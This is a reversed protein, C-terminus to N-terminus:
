TSNLWTISPAGSVVTSLEMAKVAQLAEREVAVQANRASRRPQDGRAVRCPRWGPFPIIRDEARKHTPPKRPTVHDLRTRRLTNSGKAGNPSCPAPSAPATDAVTAPCVRIFDDIVWPFAPSGGAQLAMPRQISRGVSTRPRSPIAMPARAGLSGCGSLPGTQGDTCSPGRIWLNVSEPGSPPIRLCRKSPGSGAASTLTGHRKRGKAALLAGPAQPEGALGGPEVAGHFVSVHRKLATQCCQRWGQRLLGRRGARRVPERDNGV